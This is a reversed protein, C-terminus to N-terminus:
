ANEMMLMFWVFILLVLAKIGSLMGLINIVIITVTICIGEVTKLIACDLNCMLMQTDITEALFM